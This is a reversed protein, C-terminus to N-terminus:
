MEEWQHDIEKGNVLLDSSEIYQNNTIIRGYITQFKNYQENWVGICGYKHDGAFRLLPNKEHLEAIIERTDQQIPPGHRDPKTLEKMTEKRPQHFRGM